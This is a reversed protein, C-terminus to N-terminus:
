SNTLFVMVSYFDINFALSRAFGIFLSCLREVSTMIIRALTLRMAVSKKSVRSVDQAASSIAIKRNEIITVVASNKPRQSSSGHVCDRAIINKLPEIAFMSQINPMVGALSVNRKPISTFTEPIAIASEFTSFGADYSMWVYSTSSAFRSKASFLFFPM